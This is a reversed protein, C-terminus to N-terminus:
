LGDAMTGEQFCDAVSGRDCCDEIDVTGDALFSEVGREAEVSGGRCEICEVPGEADVSGGVVWLEVSEARATILM